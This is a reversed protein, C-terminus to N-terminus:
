GARPPHHPACRHADGDVASRVTALRPSRRWHLDRIAPPAQVLECVHRAEQLPTLVCGPNPAVSRSCSARKQCSVSGASCLAVDQDQPAVLQLQPPQGAEVAVQLRRLRGTRDPEKRARGASGTAAGSTCAASPVLALSHQDLTLAEGGRAVSSPALVFVSASSDDDSDAGTIPLWTSDPSPVASPFTIPTIRSVPNAACPGDLIVHSAPDVRTQLVGPDLDDGRRRDLRGRVFPLGHRGAVCVLIVAVVLDTPHHLRHPGHRLPRRLRLSQRRRRQRHRHMRRNERVLPLPRTRQDRLQRRVDARRCPHRRQIERRALDPHRSGPHRSRRNHNPHRALRLAPEVVAM